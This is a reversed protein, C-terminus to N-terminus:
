EKPLSITFTSGINVHSEVSITGGHAEVIAKTISLGIGMGGNKQSRSIDVRYFREFLHPLDENPIGEGTDQIQLLIRNNVQQYRIIVTGERGTYKIANSMLNVMCQKLCQLDGYVPAPAPLQNILRIDKQKAKIEFNYHISECLESFDFKIKELQLFNSELRNLEQLQMVIRILRLIEDYCSQLRETTPEWIMDIMAEMQGQLNNLPTRLEHAVDATIYKKQQEKKELALSMENISAILEATEKTNPSGQTQTGYDGAAIKKATQIVSTIPTTINKTILVGLVIAISLFVVSLGILSRNLTNILMLENDDLSYPGYYGVTLYGMVNDNYILDYQKETYGGQFNPYRSHMNREAHQLVIKCEEAKHRSIDWDIEKNITQVHVIIGNQLAANGIVELGYIDYLGTGEIYQENVQIITEEIQKKQKEFAYQKFINDISFNFLIILSVIILLSVSTFALIIKSKLTHM